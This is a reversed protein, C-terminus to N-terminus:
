QYIDIRDHRLIIGTSYYLINLTDINLSLIVRLLLQKKFYQFKDQFLRPLHINKFIFDYFLCDIARDRYM